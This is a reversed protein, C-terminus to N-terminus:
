TRYAISAFQRLEPVDCGRRRLWEAWADFQKPSLTMRGRREKALALAALPPLGQEVLICLALLASRGVGRECHVLVRRGAGIASMAFQVGADLMADDIACLDDTPLHLLAVGHTRLLAMDDCDESRVDVIATIGHDRVLLEVLDGDVSGGIALESTLWSLDLGM